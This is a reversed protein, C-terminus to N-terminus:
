LTQMKHLSLHNKEMSLSLCQIFYLIFQQQYVKTNDDKLIEDIRKRGLLYAEMEETTRSDDSLHPAAYM